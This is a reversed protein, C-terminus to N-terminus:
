VGDPVRLDRWGYVNYRGKCIGKYNDGTGIATGDRRLGVIHDYGAAVAVIDRWDSVYCEDYFGGGAAVVTGDKRLGVTHCHGAM